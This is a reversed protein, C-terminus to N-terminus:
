KKSREKEWESIILPKLITISPKANKIAKILIHTANTERKPYIMQLEKVELRYKKLTEFIEGIRESIHLFYFIGRDKLLQATERAIDDFTCLVEQRSISRSIEPSHKGQHYKYFPPNTVVIDFFNKNLNKSAEKIDIKLIKINGKLIGKNTEINEKALRLYEDQIDIGIINVKKRVALLISLIGNGCGLDVINMNDKLKIFDALIFPEVTTKHGIEKEKLKIKQFM